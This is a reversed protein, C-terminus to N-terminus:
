ISSLVMDAASSDSATALDFTTSPQSMTNKRAPLFNQFDDINLAVKFPNILL